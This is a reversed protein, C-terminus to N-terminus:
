GRLAAVLHALEADVEMPDNITQSVVARVLERYRRRLRHATVKITGETTELRLAIEAYSAQDDDGQLSPLLADFLDSRGTEKMEAELRAMAAEITVLAWNRDFVQEPNAAPSPGSALRGEAQRLDMSPMLRGGGRKLAQSREIESALFLTFCGLLFSRFRGKRSDAKQVLRAEILHSFFAQTLDQADAPQYGKRRALAYVPFWYTRCLEALASDTAPGTEQGAAVIASWHTSPFVGSSSQGEHCGVAGM